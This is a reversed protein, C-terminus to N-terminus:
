CGRQQEDEVARHDHNVWGHIEDKGDQSPGASPDHADHLSKGHFCEKNGFIKKFFFVYPFPLNTLKKLFITHQTRIARGGGAQPDMRRTTKRRLKWRMGKIVLTAGPDADAEESGERAFVAM